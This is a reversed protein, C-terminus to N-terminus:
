SPVVQGVTRRDMSGSSSAIAASGLRGLIDGGKHEILVDPVVDGRLGDIGAPTTRPLQSPHTSRVRPWVPRAPAPEEVEDRPPRPLGVGVPEVLTALRETSTHLDRGQVREM